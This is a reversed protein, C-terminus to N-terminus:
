SADWGQARQKARSARNRDKATGLFALTLLIGYM